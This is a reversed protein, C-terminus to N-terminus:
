IGWERKTKKATNIYEALQAQELRAGFPANSQILSEWKEYQTKLQEKEQLVKNTLHHIEKEKTILEVQDLFQQSANLDGEVMSLKALLILIDIILSHSNQKNAIKNLSQILEKVEYFVEEEGYARLEDILLESLEFMARVTLSHDIIKESILEELIESSKGIMKARRSSKLVLAKALRYRQSIIKNKEKTNIEQLQQLYSQAKQPDGSSLSLDILNFLPLTIDPIIGIEQFLSLSLRIQDSAENYRGMSSYIEGINNHCIAIDHNNGLEQALVLADQYYNLAQEFDGRIHYILGINNLCLSLPRKQGLEKCIVLSKQLTRLALNLEGLHVHILGINLQSVAIHSYNELEEALSLSKQFFDLAELLNGMSWNIMGLNNFIKVTAKKNEFKGFIKLSEQLYEYAKQHEGKNVHIIGVLNLCEAIAYQDKNERRTNLTKQALNLAGDYEATRILVRAKM